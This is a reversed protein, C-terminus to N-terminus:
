RKEFCYLAVRTRVYIRGDLIAPTAFTDEDLNNIALIEWEPAARLVVVKGDESAVFIRGDAAVPSSWYRGLAGTLRAQKFVAGNEPNLSTLIGDRVLYIVGEYLLPSATNPLAKRYRWLVHSTTVDGRGGSRIAVLCNEAANRTQYFQWEREDIYGNHNLDAEGFWGSGYRPPMEGASLRGDHNKDYDSLAKAFEPIESRKEQDGGIEWGSVFIRDRDIVPVSKLQWAMGRVWWLKEGTEINYSAVEFSGPVILEAQGNRPRYVAPTAYGRTYEPRMTKWLVRGSPADVALLYSGTDQDCILVLRGDALIPSSGHGNVNNFPGLPLRWRENGEPGYSLLGFDGFFVYVNAGDTVPSPSAPGNTNQFYEERERPAERRWIVKGSARDLCITLLTKGEVATVFIHDATFVPSSHGAPLATRWVVNRQMDFHEPLDKSSSIGSGNPGRFQTWNAAALAIQILLWGRWGM